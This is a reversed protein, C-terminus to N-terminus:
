FYVHMQEQRIDFFVSEVEKYTTRHKVSWNLICPVSNVVRDILYGYVYPCYEHFWCQFGVPFGGCWYMSKRQYVKSNMLELMLHFWLKRWPITEYNGSEVLLFNTYIMVDGYTISFLFSHIFFLVATKLVDKDFWWRKEM